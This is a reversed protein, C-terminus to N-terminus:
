GAEEVSIPRSLPFFSHWVGNLRATAADLPVALYGAAVRQVLGLRGLRELADLVEFRTVVGFQAKLWNEVAVQLKSPPQPGEARRLFCYALLAEECDQEEAAGLIYDFFGANHNISRFFVKDTLEKLYKLSQREYKVWQRILFAGLAVCAGLAAIASQMDEDHVSGRLGLYFGAVVFLVTASSVLKLVIPVGGVLAPVTMMLKDFLSMRVRVNPLLVNLDASAINRFCKILVSGPRVRNRALRANQHETLEAHPKVAAMLVVNQYVEVDMAGNRLGMWRKRPFTELGLGRRFFRVAHFDDMPAQVKVGIAAHETHSDDIEQPSVEVFNAERLLAVFTKAFLEYARAFDQPATAEGGPADPDVPRYEERLTELRSLNEFHFISSLVRNFQWLREREPPPALADDALLAAVLDRKPVGIYYDRQEAEATVGGAGALRASETVM